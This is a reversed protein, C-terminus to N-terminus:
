GMNVPKPIEDVLQSKMIVEKLAPLESSTLANDACVPEGGEIPMTDLHLNDELLGHSRLSGNQCDLLRWFIPTMEYNVTLEANDGKYAQLTFNGLENASWYIEDIIQDGSTHPPFTLAETPQPYLTAGPKIEPSDSDCGALSTILVTAAATAAINNFRNRM